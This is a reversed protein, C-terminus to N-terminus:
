GSITSVVGTEREQEEGGPGEDADDSRSVGGVLTGDNSVYNQAVMEYLIHRGEQIYSANGNDMVPKVLEYNITAAALALTSIEFSHILASETRNKLHTNM